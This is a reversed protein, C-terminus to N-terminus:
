DSRAASTADATDKTLFDAAGARLAALIREDDLRLMVVVVMIQPHPRHLHRALELGDLDPQATEVLRLGETANAVVGVVLLDAHPALALRLGERFLPHDDIILIRLRPM